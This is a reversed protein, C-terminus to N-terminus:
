YYQLNNKDLKINLGFDIAMQCAKKGEEYQGVHWCVEGLIHWRTYDYGYKDIYLISDSPYQLSCALKIFTYSLLWQKEGKYHYAIKILPEVRKSHEFAKMYYGMSDYWSHNLMQSLNGLNMLAHFKEEQFGELHSRLRYYYFSNEIENLCACTQGLYFLTRTEEPNKKHDILLLQKDRAFRTQSKDEDYDRDQYLVIEEQTKLVVPGKIEAMDSIFEHVSGTYRWQKNTKLLRTNFYTTYSEKNKWYQRLLYANNETKMESKVFELLKGGGRLEDNSDLLLLFDVQKTDAYDLSTNRNTSFDIFEGQILYLNIKHTECHNKVIEITNDASGTDYIIYCNVYSVVSELSVHIRKEENKVMMLCGITPTENNKSLTYYEKELLVKYNNM